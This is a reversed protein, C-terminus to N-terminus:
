LGGKQLLCRHTRRNQVNQVCAHVKLVKLCMVSHMNRDTGQNKQESEERYRNSLHSLAAREWALCDTVKEGRNQLMDEGEETSYM